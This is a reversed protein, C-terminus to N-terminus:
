IVKVQVDTLSPLAPQAQLALRRRHEDFLRDVRAAEARVLKLAERYDKM